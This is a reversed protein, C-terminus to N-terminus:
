IAPSSRLAQLFYLVSLIHRGPRQTLGPLLYVSYSDNRHVSKDPLRTIIFGHCRISYGCWFSSSLLVHILINVEPFATMLKYCAYAGVAMFAGTGLSVQGCYGTLINLGIAAIAYILFPILLANAWYDNILFPVLLFAVALLLWYAYRDFAIPFTQNDADFSTKFDGAERYFM